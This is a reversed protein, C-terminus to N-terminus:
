RGTTEYPQLCGSMFSDLNELQDIVERILERMVVPWIDDFKRVCMESRM